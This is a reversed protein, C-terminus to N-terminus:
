NANPVVGRRFTFGYEPSIDLGCHAYFVKGCKDCPWAVRKTHGEHKDRASYYDAWEQYGNTAPKELEPIGTKKLDEIAFRHRCVRPKLWGLLANLM